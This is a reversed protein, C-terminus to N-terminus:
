KETLARKCHHPIEAARKWPFRRRGATFASGHTQREAWSHSHIRMLQAATCLTIMKNVLFVNRFCRCVSSSFTVPWVLPVQFLRSQLSSLRIIQSASLLRFKWWSQFLCPIFYFARACMFLCISRSLCVSPPLYLSVSLRLCISRSLCVFMSRSLFLYLSVSLYCSVSLTVNSSKLVVLAPFFYFLIFLVCETEDM